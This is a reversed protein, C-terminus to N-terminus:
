HGDCLHGKDEQIHELYSEQEERIRYKKHRYSVNLCELDPIIMMAHSGDDDNQNEDTRPM